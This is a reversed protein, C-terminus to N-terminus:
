IKRILTDNVFLYQLDSNLLVKIADCAGMVIPYGHLNFSTNMVAPRDSIKTFRSILDHFRPNADHTVVQARATDDFAHVGAIFDSRANTTEFSHMMWPSPNNTDLSKPIHICQPASEACMAPAFPMWFDRMKIMKNIKPVVHPNIPDALISRNGLARAGFEMRGQCWAIVEGEHLLQAAVGPADELDEFTVKEAFDVRAIDLDFGADPGLYIDFTKGTIVPIGQNSSYNWLAGFPLTEDGCSPFVDFSDLGPIGAIRQNAKVNMFVGGAALLRKIGTKKIAAEVWRVMLNETYAQLGAALTDFRVRQFDSILRPGIAHTPETIGRLFTLPNQPDLDIYKRFKEMIPAAYEAETYAALGMLKYEHEHPRLGLMYTIRSYINGLSHGIPTKAILEMKGNEAVYIHSCSDDGGGDLTMILYPESMKHAMGYYAAAAHNLHHHSRIIKAHGLGHRELSHYFPRDLEKFQQSRRRELLPSPVITRLMNKGAERVQRVVETCKPNKSTTYNNFFQQKSMMPSILNSLCVHAIEPPNLGLYDITFALAMHPFGIQTKERSVREEELAFLINGDKIVVVSNNIGENIGITIGTTNMTQDSLGLNM